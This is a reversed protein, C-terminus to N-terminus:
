GASFSSEVLITSEVTPEGFAFSQSRSLTYSVPMGADVDFLMTGETTMDVTLM